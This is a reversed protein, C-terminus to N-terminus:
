GYKIHEKIIIIAKQLSKVKDMKRDIQKQM